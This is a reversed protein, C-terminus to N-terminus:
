GAEFPQQGAISNLVNFSSCDTHGHLSGQGQEATSSSNGIGRSQGSTGCREAPTQAGQLRAWLPGAASLAMALVLDLVSAAFSSDETILSHLQRCLAHHLQLVHVLV